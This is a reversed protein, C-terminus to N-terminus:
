RHVVMLTCMCLNFWRIIKDTYVASITCFTQIHLVISLKLTQKLFDSVGFQKQFFTVHTQNHKKQRRIARIQIKAIINLLSIITSNRTIGFV